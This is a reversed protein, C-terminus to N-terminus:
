KLVRGNKFGAGCATRLQAKRNLCVVTEVHRAIVYREIQFCMLGLVHGVNFLRVDEPRGSQFSIQGNM